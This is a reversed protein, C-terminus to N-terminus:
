AWKGLVSMAILGATLAALAVMIKSAKADRLPGGTFDTSLLKFATYLLIGASISNLIGVSLLSAKGNQSFSKRVGIGIAIGIPTIFTFALGMIIARTKSMWDLLAIRAGLALGEFMQHFIIVIFLTTWGNGGGAGLTVGIMISHFIIGAELLLVQHNQEAKFAADFRNGCADGHLHEHEHQADPSPPLKHEMGEEIALDGDRKRHAYRTGLLDLLFTIFAAAMAIAPATSEYALEGICENAFMVFGHYLLHIFATSIIIGTGFHRAIFFLNGWWGVGRGFAASGEYVEMERRMTEQRSADGEKLWKSILPILVGLGSTVLIIFLAAIHLGMNYNDLIVAGCALDQSCFRLTLSKGHIICEGSEESSQAAELEDQSDFCDWHTEHWFCNSSETPSPISTSESTATATYGEAPGECHYHDVHLACGTSESPAAPVTSSATSGEVPGECHYHDGHLVCGTSEAPPTPVASSAATNGLVSSTSSTAQFALTSSSRSTSGTSSAPAFQANTALALLLAAACILRM